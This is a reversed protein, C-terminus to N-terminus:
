RFVPSSFADKIHTIEFPPCSGVVTIVDFRAPTDLHYYNLYASAAFLLNMEKEKTIADVAMSFDENSRTKVEVFVIVGPREAIIDIDRHGCQWSIERIEYGKKILYYAAAREGEKGLENHEAM